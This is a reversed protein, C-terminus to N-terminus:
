LHLPEHPHSHTPLPLHAPRTIPLHSHQKTTSFNLPILPPQGAFQRTYVFSDAPAGEIPTYSGLALAPTARRLRLLARTLSLMSHRDLRQAAVNVQKYDPAIPLWPDVTPPCFGANPSDDWQMPTREPDRGFGMGPLNKEAPDQIYQPSIESNDM